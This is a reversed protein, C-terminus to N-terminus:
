PRTKQERKSQRLVLAAINSAMEALLDLLDDVTLIGVLAGQKDVVPLRRVGKARMLELTDAIEDSERVTVLKSSMIDGVTVAAPGIEKAIVEVVIDRDTVIGVPVRWGGREEVVVVDGVHHARMLGAAELAASERTIVVVDRNCVEGVRM